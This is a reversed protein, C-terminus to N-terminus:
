KCIKAHLFIYTVEEVMYVRSLFPKGFVLFFFSHWKKDHLKNQTQM